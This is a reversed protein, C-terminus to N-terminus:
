EKYWGRGDSYHPDDIGDHHTKTGTRYVRINTVDLPTTKVIYEYQRLPGGKQERFLAQFYGLEEHFEDDTRGLYPEFTSVGYHTVGNEVKTINPIEKYEWDRTFTLFARKLSDHSALINKPDIKAKIAIRCTNASDQFDRAIGAVSDLGFHTSTWSGVNNPAPHELHFTKKDAYEIPLTVLRMLTIPSSIRPLFLDHIRQWKGLTEFGSSMHTGSFWHIMFEILQVREDDSIALKRETLIESYRMVYKYGFQFPRM